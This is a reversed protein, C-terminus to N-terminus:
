ARTRGPRQGASRDSRRPRRWSSASGPLSTSWGERHDSRAAQEAAGEGHPGHLVTLETGGPRRDGAGGASDGAEAVTVLVTRGAAGPEHDWGWTFELRSGPEYGVVRGRMTQGLKAFHVIYPGGEAPTVTLEGGWWQRLTAPDTFAALAREPPCGPLLLTARVMPGADIVTVPFETV